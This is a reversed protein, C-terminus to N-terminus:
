RQQISKACVTEFSEPNIFGSASHTQKEEEKKKKPNKKKKENRKKKLKHSINGNLVM